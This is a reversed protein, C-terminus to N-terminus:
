DVATMDMVQSGDGIMYNFVGLGGFFIPGSLAALSDIWGPYPERHSLVVMSPRVICCPLDGFREYVTKKFLSKTYCYTNYHGDILNHLNEELYRPNMQM